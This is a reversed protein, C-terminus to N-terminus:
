AGFYLLIEPLGGPFVLRMISLPVSFFARFLPVMFSGQMLQEIWYADGGITQAGFELIMLLLSVVLASFIVGAAAGLYHDWNKLSKIRLDPYNHNVAYELIAFFVILMGFYVVAGATRGSGPNGLSATFSNILPNYLLAAVLAALFLTLISVLLHLAYLLNVM